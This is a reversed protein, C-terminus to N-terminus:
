SPRRSKLEATRKEVPARQTFAGNEWDIPTVRIIEQDIYIHNFGAPKDRRRTSLTGAGISMIETDDPQRELVFPAHVHGSLVGDINYESLRALASAGNKTAKQLPSRPPYIFPHHAIIFKLTGDNKEKLDTILRSLKVLDVVGLSWDLKFQWGRSTNLPMITVNEDAYYPQGLPAITKEYRRFPVFIRHLLGFMPTDHNGPTILLPGELTKIWERAADFEEQSGTQTIDGCILTVDPELLAITKAVARMADKDEVGFHIDAFQIISTM